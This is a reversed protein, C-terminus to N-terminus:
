SDWDYYESESMWYSFKIKLLENELIKKWQVSLYVQGWGMYSWRYLLSQAMTRNAVSPHLILPLPASVWVHTVAFRDGIVTNISM